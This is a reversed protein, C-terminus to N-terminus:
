SISADQDAKGDVFRRGKWEVEVSFMSRLLIWIFMLNGLPHSLAFWGSRGDLREVRWRFLVILVCLLAVGGSWVPGPWWGGRAAQVGFAGLLLFPSITGVLIFFVAGMALAPRRGMGEYLNKGYGGVIADLSDYLRVSFAGPAYLLGCRVARAKFAQALRVDELVEARVVEHGGVQEYADRRVLIFQGNAFAEPRGPDNAADLDIAGRIFWGIVPILAREWFSVLTWTGYLSLLGLDDRQLARAAARASWTALRVDADVFLLLEGTAEGAARACAWPKGAWGPPPETGEILFFRADGGAARRAEAGTGDESRDDIVVLELDPYDMALIAEVCPGINDEENRAPVCVSLRVSRGELPADPALRWRRGWRGVGVVLLLWMLTLVALYGGALVESLVPDGWTM